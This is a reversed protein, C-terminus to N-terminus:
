KTTHSIVSFENVLVLNRSFRGLTEQSSKQGNQAHKHMPTINLMHGPNRSRSKTGGECPPEVYLKVKM